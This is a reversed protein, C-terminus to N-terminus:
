APLPATPAPDFHLGTVVRTKDIDSPVPFTLGLGRFWDKVSMERKGAPQVTQLQLLGKGTVVALTGDSLSLVDGAKEQPVGTSDDAPAISSTLIKIREGKLFTVAGPAPNFAMVRRHLTEAPEQWDLIALEKPCKPAHTAQDPPHEQPKQTAAKVGPGNM